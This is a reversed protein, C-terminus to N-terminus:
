CVFCVEIFRYCGVDQQNFPVPPELSNTWRGGTWNM